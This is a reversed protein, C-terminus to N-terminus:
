SFVEEMDDLTADLMDDEGTMPHIKYGIKEFMKADPANPDLLFITGSKGKQYAKEFHKIATQINSTAADTILLIHQPNPNSNVLHTLQNTPM